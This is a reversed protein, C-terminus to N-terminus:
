KSVRVPVDRTARNGFFDEAFVRLTYDGPPLESTHWFDEEAARDRVTNTVIYAFVTEGTAGSKSGEAYALPAARVDDPLTEFSVTLRPEGFGPAPSGDPKLVQYGLRYLGLRRRVANGDMQDYARVVVRVDGRVAVPAGKENEPPADLERGGRDFLRVGGKLVVPEVTDKVGPLELAALANFEGGAPGAILHVHNQNNLTGVAEGAQFRAGRRVRVGTVKGEDDRRIVFREDAFARDDQTRGVRLHVYGLAPFRISERPGGVGSVSLPRLMKEARVLRATEGYAGPIDLGNHFWADFGEGVEGRIEGFTAAIERARDPPDYPWRPAGQARFEAAKPRLQDVEERTLEFGGAGGERTVARVLKNGSDAVVLTGDATVALGTPRSLRAAELAGDALGPYHAGALTYVEPWFGRYFVRVAAGGADAVYLSGDTDIAVGTPENFTAAEPRGDAEGPEGTGAVSTVAGGLTVRRLRHNGTDAVVLSGDQDLVIGCPTDFRADAGSEADKYGPEGGGALTRVRGATDIARIRDNYTDAVFITGDPSVAVGVPGNFRAESGSGDAFGAANETGAVLTVQGSQADVRKVTHSGTDAVVLTGDPALAIASPTNLNEAVAAAGGDRAIRWVRNAEGDTVYVSGDTAAAIAFPEGFRASEGRAGALTRVAAFPKRPEPARACSLLAGCATLLLCLVFFGFSRPESRLAKAGKRSSLKECLRLPALSSAGGKKRTNQKTHEAAVSNRTM